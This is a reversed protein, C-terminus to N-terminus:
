DAAEAAAVISADGLDMPLDRYKRMSEAMRAPSGSEPEWFVLRGAAVLTWVAQQAVFGRERGLLHMAETFSPWTTLMPGQPLVDTAQLAKEHYPDNRNILAIIPGSDTLIM